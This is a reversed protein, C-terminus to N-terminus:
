AKKRKNITSCEEERQSIVISWKKCSWDWWNEGDNDLV